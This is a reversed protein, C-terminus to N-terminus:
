TRHLGKESRYLPSLFLAIEGEIIEQVLNEAALEAEIATEVTPEAVELM